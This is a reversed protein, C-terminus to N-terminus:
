ADIAKDHWRRNNQMIIIDNERCIRTNKKCVSFLQAKCMYIDQKRKDVHCTLLIWNFNFM